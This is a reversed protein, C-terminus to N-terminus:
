VRKGTKKCRTLGPMLWGGAYRDHPKLTPANAAPLAMVNGLCFSQNRDVIGFAAM